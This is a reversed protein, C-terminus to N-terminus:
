FSFTEKRLEEASAREGVCSLLQSVNMPKEFSAVRSRATISVAPTLDQLCHKTVLDALDGCAKWAGWEETHPFLVGFEKTGFRGLVDTRRIRRDVISSFKKLVEDATFAGYQEVVTDFNEVGLVAFSFPAGYRNSRVCEYDLSRLLWRRNFVGTLRDKRILSDLQERTMLPEKRIVYRRISSKKFYFLILYSMLVIFNCAKEVNNADGEEKSLMGFGSRIWAQM